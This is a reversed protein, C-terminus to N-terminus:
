PPSTTTDMTSPMPSCRKRPSYDFLPARKALGYFSGQNQPCVLCGPRAKKVANGYESWSRSPSSGNTITNCGPMSRISARRGCSGSANRAIARDQAEEMSGYATWRISPSLSPYSTWSGKYLGEQGICFQWLYPKYGKDEARKDPGSSGGPRTAGPQLTNKFAKQDETAEGPNAGPALRAEPGGAV